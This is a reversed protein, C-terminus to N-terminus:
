AFPVLSHAGGRALELARNRVWADSIRRLTWLALRVAFWAIPRNGRAEILANRSECLVDDLRNQLFAEKWGQAEVLQLRAQEIIHSQDADAVEEDEFWSLVTKSAQFAAREREFAIAEQHRVIGRTGASRAIAALARTSIEGKRARALDAAPAQAARLLYSLLSQSCKLHPALKRLSMGEQQISLVAQARDLDCLNPWRTKLEAIASSIETV